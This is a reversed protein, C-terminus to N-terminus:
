ATERTQSLDVFKDIGLAWQVEEVLTEVDAVTKHYTVEHWVDLVRSEDTPDIVDTTKSNKEAYGSAAADQGVSTRVISFLTEAPANPADSRQARCTFEIRINDDTKVRVGSDMLHLRVREAVVVQDAHTDYIEIDADTLADQIQQLTTTM